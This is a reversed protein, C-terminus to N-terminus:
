LFRWHKNLCVSLKCHLLLDLKTYISTVISFYRKMWLFFFSFGLVENTYWTQARYVDEWPLGILGPKDKWKQYYVQEYKLSWYYAHGVYSQQAYKHLSTNIIFDMQLLTTNLFGLKKLNPALLMWQEFRFTITMGLVSSSLDIHLCSFKLLQWGWISECSVTPSQGNLNDKISNRLNFM